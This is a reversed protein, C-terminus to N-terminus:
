QVLEKLVPVYGKTDKFCCFASRSGDENLEIRYMDDGFAFNLRKGFVAKAKERQAPTSLGISIRESFLREFTRMKVVTASEEDIRELLIRLRKGQVLFRTLNKFFYDEDKGIVDGNFVDDFIVVDSTAAGLINSIVICAHDASSNRFIFDSKANALSEVARKYENLERDILDQGSPTTNAKAKEMTKLSALGRM